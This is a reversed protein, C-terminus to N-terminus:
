RLRYQTKCTGAELITLSGGFLGSEHYSAENSIVWAVNFFFPPSVHLFWACFFFIDASAMSLVHGGTSRFAPGLGDSAGGGVKTISHPDRACPRETDGMEEIIPFQRWEAEM